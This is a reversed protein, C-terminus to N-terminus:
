RLAPALAHEKARIAVSVLESQAAQCDQGGTRLGRAEEILRDLYQPALLKEVPVHLALAIKLVNAFDKPLRRCKEFRRVVKASLGAIKALGQQSLGSSGYFQRHGRLHFTLAPPAGAEQEDGRGVAGVVGEGGCESRGPAVAGYPRRDPPWAGLGWRDTVAMHVVEPSCLRTM